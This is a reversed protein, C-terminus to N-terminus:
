VHPHETNKCSKKGRKILISFALLIHLTATMLRKFLGPGTNTAALSFNMKNKYPPM